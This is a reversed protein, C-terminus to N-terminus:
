NWQIYVCISEWVCECVCVGVHQPPRSLHTPVFLDGRRWSFEVKMLFLHCCCYLLIFCVARSPREASRSVAAVAAGCQLFGRFLGRASQTHNRQTDRVFVFAKSVIQEFSIYQWQPPPSGGQSCHSALILSQKQSAEVLESTEDSLRRFKTNQCCASLSSYWLLSFEFSSSKVRVSILIWLNSDVHLGRSIRRTFLKLIFGDEM